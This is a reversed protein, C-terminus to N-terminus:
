EKRLLRLGLQTTEGEVVVVSTAQRVMPDFFEPGQDPDQLFNERPVAVVHYRGPLLGTVSFKGDRVLLQRMRSSGLRRLEKEEPILLVIAADLEDDDGAVTGELTGVRNTLVIQLQGSHAPKFEFEQDTIDTWGVRVYQLAYGRPLPQVSLRVAGFLEELTFQMHSDVPASMPRGMSLMRDAQGVLVRMEPPREPQGETFLITGAISVGPSTVIVLDEMDASVHLPVSAYEKRPTKAAESPRGYIQPSVNLRYEGPFVQQITFKGHEDASTGSGGAGPPGSRSLMIMVDSRIRGQSDVVTGTLRFTRTRFVQLQLGRAEVGASIRVRSAERAGPTSPYYTIPFGDGEAEVSMRTGRGEAAVVYEGPEIGFLRFRGLDDTESGFGSRAVYGGQAVLSAYVRIRAVPEGFDDVVRGEIAGARPLAINGKDFHQGETVTIGKGIRVGAGYRASAYQGQFSDPQVQLYYTGAILDAFQYAGASDTVVARGRGGGQPFLTVVARRIPQGTDAGTVVGSIVATGTAVRPPPADRQPLAVQTFSLGLCLLLISMGTGEYM